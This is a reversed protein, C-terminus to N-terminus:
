KDKSNKRNQYTSKFQIICYALFLITFILVLIGEAMNEKMLSVAIITFLGIIVLYFLLVIILISIRLPKPFKKSVSIGEDLIIDLILSFIFDM